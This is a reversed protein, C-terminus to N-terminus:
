SVDSVNMSNMTLVGLRMSLVKSLRIEDNTTHTEAICQWLDYHLEDLLHGDDIEIDPLEIAVTRSNAPM